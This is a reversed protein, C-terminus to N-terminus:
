GQASGEPSPIGAAGSLPVAAPFRTLPEQRYFVCFQRYLEPEVDALLWPQEFFVESLVAFFEGPSEAAYPDFPLAAYAAEQRHPSRIADAADVAVCFREYAPDFAAQWAARAKAPLPPLGNADGDGRMDLKHAFEHIVVNYGDGAQSVDEWSVILPGGLWAEGSAVDDYKHVVGFEDTEERPVVFEAPYVIIEVWDDYWHLGLELIPLCGQIAITLCIDDDIEMGPATSFEKRALFDGALQRLRILEDPRLAAVFPLKSVVRQWLADTIGPALPTNPSAPATRHWWSLLRQLM